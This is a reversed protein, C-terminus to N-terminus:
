GLHKVDSGTLASLKDAVFRRHCEQADAEYCLLCTRSERIIEAAEELAEDQEDLFAQYAEWDYEGTEREKKLIEPPTGLARNHHYGIGREALAESLPTKSLGAKRSAPRYRVDLLMEVGAQKLSSVVEEASRGEYGLTLIAEQDM